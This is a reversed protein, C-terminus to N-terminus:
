MVSCDSPVDGDGDGKERIGSEELRLTPWWIHHMVGIRTKEFADAFRQLGQSDESAMAAVVLRIRKQDRPLTSRREYIEKWLPDQATRFGDEITSFLILMHMTIWIFNLASLPHQGCIDSFIDVRLLDLLATDQPNSRRPTKDHLAYPDPPPPGPAPIDDKLSSSMNRIAEIDERAPESQGLSVASMQLLFEEPHGEARSRQVLETDKLKKEGTAPDVIRETQNVRAAFLLSPIRVERDPIRQPVWGADFYKMLESKVTFFRNFNLDLLRHVDLNEKQAEARRRRHSVVAQERGRSVRQTLADLFNDSPVKDQFFAGPLLQQLSDYLGVGRNLFGKKVLVNHMHLILTPEPMEDWMLMSLRQILVIGEALGAGCLFPSYEWLGNANYKSFRSPAITNLRHMYKSEGLWDVFDLKIEELLPGAIAHKDSNRQEQKDKELMQELIDISQLVGPGQNGEGPFRKVERDLFFDVDRRPRFHRPPATVVHGWFPKVTWGRSVMFSDVICQLQFVHHPLIKGKIDTTQKQMALSTIDGAFENLGFLRRHHHWPGRSSWDVNELIHREGKMTNRQVVISSYLNVLDYLWNITYLRRWQIREDNTARQLDRNPDWQNLQAQMAKTPKGRNKQFDTIFAVLDNYTHVWFSEKADLYTQRIKEPRGSDRMRYLDLSFQQQAREIDGRTITQMITEYSEHGPFEVFVAICTQKVMAVATNTLSAAVAGNLGEYTVEHWLDQTYSRLEMWEQVVAYVAMLYDSILGDQDEIIRYSEIPLDSLPPAAAPGTTSRAKPKKGRKGKKGKASKKKRPKSQQKVPASHLHSADDDDDDDDDEEDEIKGLSLVSFQTQLSMVDEDKVDEDEASVAEGSDWSKGGLANFAETLADIFYKHTANAREIEPDPKESVIREFASATISRAKIVAKFLKFIASPVPNLHKAILRAM